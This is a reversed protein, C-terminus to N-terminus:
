KIGIVSKIYPNVVYLPLLGWNPPNDVKHFPQKKIVRNFLYEKPHSTSGTFFSLIPYFVLFVLTRLPTWPGKVSIFRCICSLIFCCGTSFIVRTKQAEQLSHDLVNRLESSQCSLVFGQSLVIIPHSWLGRVLFVFPMPSSSLVIRPHIKYKKSLLLSQYTAVLGDSPRTLDNKNFLLIRDGVSLIFLSFILVIWFGMGGFLLYAPCSLIGWFLLYRVFPSTWIVSM